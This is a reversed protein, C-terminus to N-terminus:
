TSSYCMLLSIGLPSSCASVFDNRVLVSNQPMIPLIDEESDNDTRNRPITDM